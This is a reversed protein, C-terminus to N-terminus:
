ATEPSINSIMKPQASGGAEVRGAEGDRQTISDRLKSPVITLLKAREGSTLQTISTEWRAQLVKLTRQKTEPTLHEYVEAMGPLKHGLRAARGM